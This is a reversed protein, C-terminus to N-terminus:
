PTPNDAGAPVVYVKVMVDPGQPPGEVITVRSPDFGTGPRHIAKDIQARAAKIQAPTGYIIIYGHATPDNALQSYLGEVHAKVADNPIKGYTDILNANPKNIAIDANATSRRPCDACLNAGSIDVTATISSNNSLGTTDVTISSTGQGSSITGASVTWNYTVDGSSTATFTVSTGPATIGSPGSVSLSPCTCIATCDPCTRVTITQTNTKGCVGCGDDVATTITYTGVGVSSLDWSVNAGTGVIRGGSVTYNYTLVDNEPDSARTSVTITHNDSCGANSRTGAPCPLNITTDSLTVADVNPPQNYVPGPRANRHGAFVQFGFGSPDDSFQFGTPFGNTTAVVTTGPINIVGSGPVFVGSLQTVNRNATVKNFRGEDFQNLNRRYWAGFGFWRRPYVKIGGIVDVPNQPMANPTRGGVYTVSKVEAIPQYWKNVPFDFGVGLLLEDARDLLVVDGDRPNSNRIYGVNGSVNVRRSLRADVAGILGFDGINGGPGAGRQMMNFGGGRTPTDMWHRWFPILAIGFPNNPGTLRWKAGLVIDNWMSEGYLRNIFPADPLYSPAITFTVPVTIPRTLLTGPLTTTALVIGPLIGGVPSGVGPFNSAHGFNGGGPTPPGLVLPGFLVPPLGFNAASGNTFPYAVQPQTGAPRFLATGALTGVNNRTPALIIAPPSILGGTATFVQSNPLYFSSLNLPNNVKVGRYGTTKGWLELHDNLGINFSIPVETIDVNGPDRDYNSYAISFTFEGKRITQGDYITFLGTPGGESGGTGVAPSLNRPDSAPRLTQSHATSVGFAISLLAVCVRTAVRM